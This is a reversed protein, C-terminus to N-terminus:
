VITHVTEGTVAMMILAHLVIVALEMSSKQLPGSAPLPFSTVPPQDNSVYFSIKSTNCM